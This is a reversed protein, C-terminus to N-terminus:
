KIFNDDLPNLVASKNNIDICYKKILDFNDQLANLIIDLKKDNNINNNEITNIIITTLHANNDSIDSLINNLILKRSNM